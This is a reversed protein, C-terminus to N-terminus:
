GAAPASCGAQPPAEATMGARPANLWTALAADMSTAHIGFWELV